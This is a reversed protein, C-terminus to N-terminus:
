PAQRLVRASLLREELMRRTGPCYIGAGNFVVAPGPLELADLVPLTAITSRGTAVMVVVGRRHAERLALVTEPHMEGQSNVLTGDLDLLIARLDSLLAASGTEATEM